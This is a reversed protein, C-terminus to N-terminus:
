RGGSAEQPKSNSNGMEDIAKSIYSDVNPWAVSIFELIMTRTGEPRNEITDSLSQQYIRGRVFARFNQLVGGRIMGDFFSDGYIVVPPLLTRDPSSIAGKFELAPTKDAYVIERSPEVNELKVSTETPTSFLPLFRSQGGSFGAVPATDFTWGEISYHSSSDEAITQVLTQAMRAATPDTWHMDTKYFITKGSKKESLLLPRPDIFNVRPDKKMADMFAMYRTYSSVRRAREPLHEAYFYDKLPISIVYLRIGKRSLMDTLKAFRDVSEFVYSEPLAEIRPLQDDIVSRYYM